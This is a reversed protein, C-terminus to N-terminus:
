TYMKEDDDDKNNKREKKVDEESTTTTTKKNIIDYKENFEKAWLHSIGLDAFFNKVAVDNFPIGYLVRVLNNVVLSKVEFVKNPNSPDFFTKFNTEGTDDSETEERGVIIPLAHMTARCLLLLEKRLASDVKSENLRFIYQVLEKKSDNTLEHGNSVELAAATFKERSLVVNNNNRRSTYICNNNDIIRM